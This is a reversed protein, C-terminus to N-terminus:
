YLMKLAYENLLQQYTNRTLDSLKLNPVLKELWKITMKYKSMTVDRVAGDKYTYVWKYYYDYFRNDANIKEM